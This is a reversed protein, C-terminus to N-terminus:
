SISPTIPAGTEDNVNGTATVNTCSVLDIPFIPRQSGPGAGPNEISIRNGTIILQDTFQVQMGYSIPANHLFKNNTITLGVNPSGSSGATIVGSTDRSQITNHNITWNTYPGPFGQIGDFHAADMQAPTRLLDHIYNDHINVGSGAVTIGNECNSIDCFSIETTTMTYISIAALSFGAIIRCRRITIGTLPTGVPSIEFVGGQPGTIICDQITVNSHRLVIHGNHSLDQIIQGSATTNLEGSSNTFSTGGQPGTTSADPWGNGRFPQPGGARTLIVRGRVSRRAERSKSEELARLFAQQARAAMPWAAAAGGVLTMFERRKLRDFQM